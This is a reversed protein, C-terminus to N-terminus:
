QFVHKINKFLPTKDGWVAKQGKVLIRAVPRNYHTIECMYMYLANVHVFIYETSLAEYM